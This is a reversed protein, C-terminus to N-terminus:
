KGKKKSRYEKASNKFEILQKDDFFTLVTTTSRKTNGVPHQIRAKVKGKDDPKSYNIGRINEWRILNSRKMIGLTTVKTRQTMPIYLIILLVPLVILLILNTTNYNDSSMMDVILFGVSVIMFILVIISFIRLFKDDDNLYYLTKIDEKKYQSYNKLSTFLLYFCLLSLVGYFITNGDM